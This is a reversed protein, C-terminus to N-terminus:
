YITLDNTCNIQQYSFSLIRCRDHAIKVLYWGPVVRWTIKSLRPKPLVWTNSQLKDTQTEPSSHGWCTVTVWYPWQMEPREWVQCCLGQHDGLAPITHKTLLLPRSYLILKWSLNHVEKWAQVGMWTPSTHQGIACNQTTQLKPWTWWCILHLSHNTM